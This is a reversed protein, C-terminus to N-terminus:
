EAARTSRGQQRVGPERRERPPVVDFGAGCLEDALRDLPWRYATFGAHDFTGVEHCTFLGVLLGGCPRLIRAFERLLVQVAEPIYHLLLYWALVGM